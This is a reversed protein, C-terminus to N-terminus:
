SLSITESGTNFKTILYLIIIDWVTSINGQLSDSSTFYPVLIDSYQFLILVKVLLRHQSNMGM